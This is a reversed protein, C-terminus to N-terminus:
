KRYTAATMERVELSVAVDSNELSTVFAEKLVAFMADAIKARLEEPRGTLVAIEVHAFGEPHGEGVVWNSRLTHYAKVAAPSVTEMTSLTETLVALIQPIDGNEHLDATTQLHIHPVSEPHCIPGPRPRHSSASISGGCEPAGAMSTRGVASHPSALTEWTSLLM